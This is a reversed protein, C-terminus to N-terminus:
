EQMKKGTVNCSSHLVFHDNYTTHLIFGFLHTPHTWVCTLFFCQLTCIPVFGHLRYHLTEKIQVQQWFRTYGPRDQHVRQDVPSLLLSCSKVACATRISGATALTSCHEGWVDLVRVNETVFDFGTTSHQQRTRSFVKHIKDVVIWSLCGLGLWIRWGLCKCGKSISVTWVPYRFAVSHSEWCPVGGPHGIRIKSSRQADPICQHPVSGEVQWPFRRSCWTKGCFEANTAAVGTCRMGICHHWHRHLCSPYRAWSKPSLLFFIHPDTTLHNKESAWCIRYPLGSRNPKTEHVTGWTGNWFELSM